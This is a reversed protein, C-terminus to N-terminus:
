LYFSNANTYDDVFHYTEVDFHSYSCKYLSMTSFFLRIASSDISSILIKRRKSIM